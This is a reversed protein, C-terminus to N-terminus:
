PAPLAQLKADLKLALDQLTVKWVGTHYIHFLAAGVNGRRFLIADCRFNATDGLGILVSGLAIDGLPKTVVNRQWALGRGPPYLASLLLDGTMIVDLASQSRTGSYVYTYGLVTEEANVQGFHYGFMEAIRLKAGEMVLLSADDLV